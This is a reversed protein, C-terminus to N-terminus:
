REIHTAITSGAVSGQLGRAGAGPQPSQAHPRVLAERDYRITQPRLLCRAKRCSSQLCDLSHLTVRSYPETTSQAIRM